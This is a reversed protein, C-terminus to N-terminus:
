SLHVATCADLEWLVQFDGLPLRRNEDVDNWPNPDMAAVEDTVREIIWWQPQVSGGVREWVRALWPLSKGFQYKRIRTVRADRDGAGLDRQVRDGYLARAFGAVEEPGTGGLLALVRAVLAEAAANGATAETAAQIAACADAVAADNAVVGDVHLEFAWTACTVAVIQEPSPSEVGM